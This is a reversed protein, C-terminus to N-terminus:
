VSLRQIRSRPIAGCDSWQVCRNVSPEGFRGTKIIHIDSSSPTSAACESSWYEIYKQKRM